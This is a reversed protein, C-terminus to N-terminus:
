SCTASSHLLAAIHGAVKTEKVVMVEKEEYEAKQWEMAMEFRRHRM